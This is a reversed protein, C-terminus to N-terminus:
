AQVADRVAAIVRDQTPEDLYAHMPLAIVDASLRESIPLGGEAVPFDRYATQQHMSKPYYIATPVGQAKLAAAFGDRDVGSPLRITYQAWVSTSGPALRPVTVINSLGRAYRGAVRNRAAIEDEFINLKEILIAAQMTDLRGTLGLRVNDYKDTGQGHVRISKLTEALQADDTFIAGGDGFCGLPKAPFFSTATALGLTGLRRGKYSAGFGQAADDLVFLGEAEAVAAIADHDASQGFLDVPIIARPKLGLKRATAIGRELSAADMNFTAEDVDVFVPTAGALAVAEGTACFTFSPCLVADGRGLGKAMLVMLLADTGSACSVVHKAGSFAALEAELETVEPGNIFQCHGLVRAMAEDIAKGLRKRQSAVDIFPIAQLRLHQNMSGQVSSSSSMLTQDNRM